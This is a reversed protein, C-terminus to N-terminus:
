THEAYKDRRSILPKPRSQFPDVGKPLLFDHSHRSILPKPRSQFTFTQSHESRNASHRSILPKPRSQFLVPRVKKQRDTPTAFHAAEAAISVSLVFGISWNGVPRSILPKPRSQFSTFEGTEEYAQLRRSILPKPRSQFWFCNKTRPEEHKTPRLM